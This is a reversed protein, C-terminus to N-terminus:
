SGLKRRSTQTTGGVQNTDLSVNRGDDWGKDYAGYSSIKGTRFRKPVLGLGKAFIDLAVDKKLVIATCTSAEPTKTRDRKGNLERARSLIRQSFGKRYSSQEISHKRGYNIYVLTNMSARLEKFMARAVAVDHPQGYIMIARKRKGDIYHYDDYYIRCGCLIASAGILNRLQPYITGKMAFMVEEVVKSAVQEDTEEILIAQEELNYQDMLKKAFAMANEIEGESAADNNALRLLKKIRGIIKDSVAM